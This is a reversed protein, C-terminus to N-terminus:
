GGSFILSFAVQFFKWVIYGLIMGLFFPVSKKYVNHGGFRLILGKILWALFITLWYERLPQSQAVPIGLYHIPWWTFKSHLFMVIGMLGAGIGTFLYRSLIVDATMPSNLKQTVFRAVTNSMSPSLFWRAMGSGSVSANLTGLRYGNIIFTSASCVYSVIIASIISGLLLKAPIRTEDQIKLNHGVTSMISTRLECTWTYQFGLAIYGQENFLNPPLLSVTYVPPICMARAAPLGAQCIIRSLGLFVVVSFLLFVLSVFYSMGVFRLLGVMLLFSIVSGWVSTRYPLMESSDDISPDNRFAKRCCDSLHKRARWFLAIVLMLMAGGGQFCTVSSGEQYPEAVGPLRFGSMALLSGELSLLLSFFWLSLSVSRPILYTLGLVPFYLILILKLTNRFLSVTVRQPFISSGTLSDTWWNLLYYLFVLAFSLWFLKNTFLDPLRRKKEKKIMELPLVTLPYILREKEVWQKRFLVMLCISFFSFALIFLLFFGLPKIWVMYPISEGPPLGEYYYKAALEDKIIVFPSLKSIILEDWQNVSTAFYKLGSVISTLTAILATPFVSATSAMIFILLLERTSLELNRHICPLLLMLFLAFIAAPAWYEWTFYVDVGKFMLYPDFISIGASIILGIIFARKRM